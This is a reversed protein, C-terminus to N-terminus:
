DRQRCRRLGWTGAIWSLAGIFRSMEQSGYESSGKLLLYSKMGTGDKWSSGICKAHIGVKEKRPDVLFSIIYNRTPPGIMVGYLTGNLEEM